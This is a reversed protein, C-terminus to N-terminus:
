GLDSKSKENRTISLIRSNKFLLFEGMAKEVKWVHNDANGSYDDFAGILDGKSKKLHLFFIDIGTKINYDIDFVRDENIPVTPWGEMVQMLGKAGKCSVAMPDYNSDPHIIGLVIEYPLGREKAQKIIEVAIDERLTKPLKSNKQKLFDSVLLEESSLSPELVEGYAPKISASPFYKLTVMTAIVIGFVFASVTLLIISKENELKRYTFIGKVKAVINAIM